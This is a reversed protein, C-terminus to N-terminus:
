GRVDEAFEGSEGVAEMGFIVLEAPGGGFGPVNGQLEEAAGVLLLVVADNWPEAFNMVRVYGNAKLGGTEEVVCSDEEGVDFRRRREDNELLGDDGCGGWAAEGGLRPGVM